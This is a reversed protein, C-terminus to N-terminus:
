ALWPATRGATRSAAPGVSAWPSLAAARVAGALTAAFAGAAPEAEAAPAAAGSLPIPRAPSAPTTERLTQRLTSTRRTRQGTPCGALRRERPLPPAFEM